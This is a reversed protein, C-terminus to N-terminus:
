QSFVNELKRNLQFPSRRSDVCTVQPDLGAIGKEEHNLGTACPINRMSVHFLAINLSIVMPSGLGWRFRLRLRHKSNSETGATRSM